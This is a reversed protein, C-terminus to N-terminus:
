REDLREAIRAQVRAQQQDGDDAKQRRVIRADLARDGGDLAPKKAVSEHQTIVRARSDVAERGPLARKEGTAEPEDVSIHQKPAVIFRMRQELAQQRQAIVDPKQRFFIIRMGLALEAVKRLRERM